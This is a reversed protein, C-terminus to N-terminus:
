LSNLQLADYGCTADCLEVWWWVTRQGFHGGNSYTYDVAGYTPPNDFWYDIVPGSELKSLFDDYWQIYNGTVSSFWEFEDGYSVVDSCAWAGSAHSVTGNEYAALTASCDILYLQEQVQAAHAAPHSRKSATSASAGGGPVGTHPGSPSPPPTGPGPPPPVPTATGPATTGPATTGPATATEPQMQTTALRTDPSNEIALWERVDENALVAPDPLDDSTWQLKAFDRTIDAATPNNPDGLAAASTDLAAGHSQLSVFQSHVDAPINLGSPRGNPLPVSETTANVLPSPAGADALASSPVAAIGAAAISLLSVRLSARRALRL